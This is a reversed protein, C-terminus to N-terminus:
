KHTNHIKNLQKQVVCLMMRKRLHTPCCSTEVGLGIVPDPGYVVTDHKRLSCSVTYRALHSTDWAVREKSGKDHRRMTGGTLTTAACLTYTELTVTEGTNDLM